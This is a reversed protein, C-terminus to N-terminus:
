AEEPQIRKLISELHAENSFPIVISGRGSPTLKVEVVSEFKESLTQTADMFKEPLALKRSQDPRSVTTKAPLVGSKVMKEVERVSLDNEIAYKMFEMQKQEDEVGLLARAHGMSLRNNRLALQIEAPLKLLRLFNTITSRNKGVQRSLEEQTLQCEEILRQFSIAIEVPNLDARQINEVLSMELMQQDNAIRIYAPVEILGALKAARLRREGSILQYRDYGMKRVTLPQIIGQKRISESLETLLQEEFQSRPQFPNVDIQEISINSVAGLVFKGSTDNKSTIDTEPNELLSSLGRGIVNVKKKNVTM